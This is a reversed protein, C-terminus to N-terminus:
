FAKFILQNDSYPPAGRSPILPHTIIEWPFLLALAILFAIKWAISNLLEWTLTAISSNSILFILYFTHKCFKV